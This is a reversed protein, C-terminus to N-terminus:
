LHLCSVMRFSIDSIISASVFFSLGAYRYCVFFFFLVFDIKSSAFSHSTDTSGFFFSTKGFIMWVVNLGSMTNDDMILLSMTIISIVTGQSVQHSSAWSLFFAFYRWNCSSQLALTHFHQSNLTSIHGLPNGACDSHIINLPRPTFPCCVCFYMYFSFMVALLDELHSQNLFPPVVQAGFM